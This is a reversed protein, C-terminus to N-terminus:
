ACALLAKYKSKLYDVRREVFDFTMPATHPLRSLGTGFGDTPFVVIGGIALYNEVLDFDKGIKRCNEEYEEDTYFSQYDLSPYKKTRIGIANPEGRMERAQGGLGERMDNDGFAYM